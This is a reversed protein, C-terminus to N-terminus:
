SIRLWLTIGTEGSAASIGMCRWTGALATGGSVVFRNTNFEGNHIGGSPRLNSGATTANYAVTAMTYAFVYSGVAGASAGAIMALVNATSMQETGALQTAGVGGPAIALTRNAALSGGGTLGTGASVLTGILAYRGDHDGSTRHDNMAKAQLLLTASTSTRLDTSDQTATATLGLNTRAASASGLDGLNNARHVYRTDAQTAATGLGHAATGELAIHTDLASQVGSEASEVFAKTAADAADVPTGVRLRGNADRKALTNATTLNTAAESVDVVTNLQTHTKTIPGTINPFTNLLVNKLGRIHDDGQLVKDTDGDPNTRILHNLYRSAGLLDELAM